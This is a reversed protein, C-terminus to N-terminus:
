IKNRQLGYKIVDKSSCFSRCPIEKSNKERLLIGNKLM